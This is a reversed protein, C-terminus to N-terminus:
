QSIKDGFAAFDNGSSQRTTAGLMLAGERAGDLLGSRNGKQGKDSGDVKPLIASKAKPLGPSKGCVGILVDLSITFSRIVPTKIVLRINRMETNM